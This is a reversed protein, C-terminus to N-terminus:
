PDSGPTRSHKANSRVNNVVHLVADVVLNPDDRTIDHTAEPSVFRRANSSLTMLDAQLEAWRRNAEEIPMHDALQPFAAFSRGASVVALPLDTVERATRVSAVFQDTEDMERRFESFFEPRLQAAASANGPPGNMVRLLGLRSMFGAVKIAGLASELLGYAEPLREWQDEHASDVLVIGAVRGPYDSAYLRAMWGGFSHGAYVIPQTEGAATLLRNLEDLMTHPDRPRPSRESWGFGARDYACARTERGVLELVTGWDASIAGSGAEFVVTPWGDGVCQIHLGYGGVDFMRGPMPFRERDRAEALGEYVLGMLPLTVVICLVVLLVKRVRSM